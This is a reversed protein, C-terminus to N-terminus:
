RKLSFHSKFTKNENSIAEFYNVTFWYDSSPLPHGNLTGDWGEGTPSIQRILKGYRDFIFVKATAGLGVINWTDHYSDGNPTFYTPYGIITVLKTLNTCGNEDTVTVVHLGPSVNTFVNSSQTLGNDLTYQYITNLPNVDVTITANDSFALSETTIMSTGPFSATVVANTLVSKCGSATNTVLVSYNGAQTAQYTNNTAGNIVIGNFYWAFDYTVNSLQTDLIYNQYSTNTTQNVCIVGNNIQPAPAPNVTITVLLARGVCGNATPTITYIATGLNPSATLIDNIVVGTGAQAGTVNITNVTWAFTTAPISPFLAINPTEGSCITATSSGFVEPTPNVIITVTIPIGFCGNFTPTITYLVSGQTSNVTTLTQAITAGNGPSAGFVGTQIVSWSFTTGAISSTLVINTTSSSCLTTAATNATVVPIPSVRVNILVSAGQCVGIIPTVSYVAEGINNSTATLIQAISSGTGNSAGIVNNQVVNWNFVTGAVNSTLLIPSVSGSCVTQLVTSPTVVPISNVNITTTATTACQNTAPTFTYTTTATNNIAPLWTGTINNNSTTPLPSLTEGLCISAVPTFTPTTNSNVNITTTATTACQNTAPTFTYTTTATNNIAPSWTGTINNNSTTPLPSLTSGSCISAVPTFTPTTNSNVNITTTATTACQNTAPTFTYTTTATNNIAPLWTGTINNNSTTPLPSLTVGSCISAVPTFTPTTNSNVNITTTATTACQNTAPTFTYTTTATNNIAPLWTGTINNNSTTPLPLFTAGSCISAVPTFTPTTNDSITFDNFCSTTGDTITARYTVTSTPNVTVSLPSTTSTAIVAGTALNTITITKNLPTGVVINDLGWNDTVDSTAKEQHWRFKTNTTKAATPIPVIIKRWSQVFPGTGQYFDAPGNNDERPYIYNFTTWTTGGNTSYQMYIGELNDYQDRDSGECPVSEGQRAQRYDFSITGGNLVNIGNVSELTRPRVVNAVWLFTSSNTTGDRGTAACIPNSFTPTFNPVWNPGLQGNNFDNNIPTSIVDGTATLTVPQGVCSTTGTLNISCGPPGTPTYTKILAKFGPKTTSSGTYNRFRITLAGLANSSAFIGPNTFAAFPPDSKVGMGNTYNGNPFQSFNGSLECLQNSAITNGDFIDLYDGNAVLANPNGGPSNEDFYTNFESFDLYVKQGPIAPVLTITYDQNTDNGAPGGADYLIENGTVSVTGGQSILINQSYSYYSFILFLINFVNFKIKDM